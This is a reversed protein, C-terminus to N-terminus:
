GLGDQNGLKRNWFSTWWRGSWCFRATAGLFGLQLVAAFIREQM